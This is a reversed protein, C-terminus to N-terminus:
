PLQDQHHDIWVNGPWSGCGCWIVWESSSPGNVECLLTDGCGDNQCVKPTIRQAVNKNDKYYAKLVKEFPLMKKTVPESM